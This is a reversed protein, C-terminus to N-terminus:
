PLERAPRQGLNESGLSLRSCSLGCVINFLSTASFCTKVLFVGHLFDLSLSFFLSVANWVTKVGVCHHLFIVLFFLALFAFMLVYWSAIFFLSDYYACLLQRLNSGMWQMTM